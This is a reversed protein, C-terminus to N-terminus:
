GESGYQNTETGTDACNGSAELCFKGGPERAICCGIFPWTNAAMHAIEYQIEEFTWRQMSAYYASRPDKKLESLHRDIIDPVERSANKPAAFFFPAPDFMIPTDELGAKRAHMLGYYRNTLGADVKGEAIMEFETEYDAVPILTIKLGFSNALRAFTELQFRIRWPPLESGNLDM